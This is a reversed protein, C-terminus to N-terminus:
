DSLFRHSGVVTFAQAVPGEECREPLERQFEAFAAVRGMPNPGADPAAMFIHIFTVGDELRVTMYRVGDPGRDALEAYVNEILRQNENASGRKTKYRILSKM